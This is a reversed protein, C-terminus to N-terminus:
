HHFLRLATDCFLIGNKNCYRIIDRDRISGMPAAIYKVGQKAALEINDTQPFFGDSCVALKELRPLADKSSYKEKRLDEVIRDKETRTSAPPFRMAEYDLNRKQFWRDAKSLALETCLIRSQQGSGIGIVHGNKVVCISNSQTYKLTIM